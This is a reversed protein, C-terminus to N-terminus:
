RRRRRRVALAAAGGAVMLLLTAPEPTHVPTMGIEGGGAGGDGGGGGDGPGGGPPDGGLYTGGPGGGSQDGQDGTDSGDDGTGTVRATKLGAGTGRGRGRERPGPTGPSGFLSSVGTPAASGSAGRGGGVSAPGSLGGLSSAGGEGDADAPRPRDYLGGWNLALRPPPGGPDPPVYPVYPRPDGIPGQNTRKPKVAASGQESSAAEELSLVHPALAPGSADGNSGVGGVGRTLIWLVALCVAAAIGAYIKFRFGRGGDLDLPEDPTV